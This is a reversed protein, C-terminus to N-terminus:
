MNPTIRRIIEEVENGLGSIPKGNRVDTGLNEVRKILDPDATVAVNNINSDEEKVKAEVRNKLDTTVKGETNDNTNIGVLCTNGTLIVSANKVEPLETLKNAIRDSKEVMSNNDTNTNLNDNPYGDNPNNYLHRDTSQNNSDRPEIGNTSRPVPENPAIKKPTTRCGISGVAVSLTLISLLSFKKLSKNM